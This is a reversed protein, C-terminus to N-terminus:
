LDAVDRGHVTLSWVVAFSIAIFLVAWLPYWPLWAFAVLMALVAMVIGVVRAWVAGSFLALGAALILVGLLLHTWGWTTLDFRFIYEPTSVFFQDNFLTVLGAIVWWTGQMVMMTAAFAMWGIAWGSPERRPEASSGYTAAM